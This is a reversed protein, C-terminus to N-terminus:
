NLNNTKNKLQYLTNYKANEYFESLIEPKIDYVNTAKYNQKLNDEFYIFKPKKEVIIKNIDYPEKYHFLKEDIKGIYTWSFWYYHPNQNFLGLPMNTTALVIDDSNSNKAIDTAIGVITLSNIEGVDEFIWFKGCWIIGLTLFLYGLYKYKQYITIIAISIIIANYLLLIKFYYLGISIYTTRLLLETIYMTFLIITYKNPKNILLFLASIFGCILISYLSSFNTISNAKIEDYIASNVVWNLEYYRQLNGLILMHGFFLSLTVFPLILSLAINKWTIEKKYIYYIICISLPLALFIVTQLFCFAITFSLMSINLQHQKKNKLLSFLFYIGIWFFLQMFADPKFQVMSSMATSSFCYINIATLATLKNSIFNKIINYVVYLSVLSCISVIIRNIFFIFTNGSFFGVIPSFIYWLLPHHHEFFDSYPIQGQWILWSAHIHELDDAMAKSGIFITIFLYICNIITFFILTKLLTNEKMKIEKTRSLVSFFYGKLNFKHFNTIIYFFIKKM